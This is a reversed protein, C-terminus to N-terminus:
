CATWGDSYKSQMQDEYVTISTRTVDRRQSIYSTEARPKKPADHITTHEIQCCCIKIRRHKDNEDYCQSSTNYVTGSIAHSLKYM